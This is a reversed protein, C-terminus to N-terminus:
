HKISESTREALRASMSPHQIDSWVFSDDSYTLRLECYFAGSEGCFTGHNVTVLDDQNEAAILELGRVNSNFRLTWLGDSDSVWIQTVCGASGCFGGHASGNCPFGVLTIIPDDINDGNFDATAISESPLAPRQGCVETLWQHNLELPDSVKMGNAPRLSDGESVVVLDQAAVESFTFCVAVSAAILRKMM